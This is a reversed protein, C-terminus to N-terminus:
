AYIVESRLIFVYEYLSGAARGGRGRGGTSCVDYDLKQQLLAEVLLLM